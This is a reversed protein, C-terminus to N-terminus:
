QMLLCLGTTLRATKISSVYEQISLRYNAAKVQHLRISKAILQLHDILM